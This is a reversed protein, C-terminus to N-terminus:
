KQSDPQNHIHCELIKVEAQHIMGIAEADEIM